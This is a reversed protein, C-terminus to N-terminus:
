STLAPTRKPITQDKSRGLDSAPLVKDSRGTNLPGTKQMQINSKASECLLHLLIGM